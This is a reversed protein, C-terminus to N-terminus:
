PTERTRAKEKKERTQQRDTKKETWGRYFLYLKKRQGTTGYPLQYLWIGGKGVKGKKENEEGGGRDISLLSDLCNAESGGGGGYTGVASDQRQNKKQGHRIAQKKEERGARRRAHISCAVTDRGREREFSFRFCPAGKKREKERCLTFEKGSM